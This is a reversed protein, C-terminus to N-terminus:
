KVLGSALKMDSTNCHWPTDSAHKIACLVAKVVCWDPLELMGCTGREEEAFKL